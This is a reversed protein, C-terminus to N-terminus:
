LFSLLTPIDHGVLRFARTISDYGAKRLATIAWSRLFAMVTAPGSATIQSNDEGQVVDKVWHVRNECAGRHDQILAAVRHAPLLRSLIYWSETQFPKGDRIGRREVQVFAALGNWAQTAEPPAAFVQVTREVSRGHSTDPVAALTSLPPQTEACHQAQRLLTPQNGKLGICYENESAVITEVTKKVTCHM